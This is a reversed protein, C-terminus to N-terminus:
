FHGPGPDPPEIHPPRDRASLRESWRGGHRDEKGCNRCHRNFNGDRDAEAV